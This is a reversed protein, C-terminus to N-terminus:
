LTQGSQWQKGMVYPQLLISTLFGRALHHATVVADLGQQLTSKKM